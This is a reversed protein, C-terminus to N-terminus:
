EIQSGTRRIAPIQGVHLQMHSDFEFKGGNSRRDSRRDAQRDLVVFEQASM